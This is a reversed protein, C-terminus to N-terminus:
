FLRGAQLLLVSMAAGAGAVTLRLASLFSCLPWSCRCVQVQVAMPGPACSCGRLAGAVLGGRLSASSLAPPQYQVPIMPALPLQAAPPRLLSTAGLAAPQMAVSGLSPLM